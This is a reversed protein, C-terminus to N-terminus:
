SKLLLKYLLDLLEIDKCQKLLETIKQVYENPATMNTEGELSFRVDTRTIVSYCTIQGM